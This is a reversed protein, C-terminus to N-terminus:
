TKRGLIRVAGRAEAKSYALWSEYRGGFEERLAPSAKWERRARAEIGFTDRSSPSATARAQERAAEEDYMDSAEGQTLAPINFANRESIAM